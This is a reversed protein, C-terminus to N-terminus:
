RLLLFPNKLHDSRVARTNFDCVDQAFALLCPCKIKQWQCSGRTITMTKSIVLEAFWLIASFIGATKGPATNGSAYYFWAGLILSLFSPFSSKWSIRSKTVLLLLNGLTHAPSAVNRLSCAISYFNWQKVEHGKWDMQEQPFRMLGLGWWPSLPPGTQRAAVRRVVCRFVCWAASQAVWM